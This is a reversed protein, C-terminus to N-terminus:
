ITFNVFQTVFKSFIDFDESIAISMELFKTVFSVHLSKLARWGQFARVHLGPPNHQKGFCSFPYTSFHLCISFTSVTLLCSLSESLVNFHSRKKPKCFAVLFVLPCIECAFFSESLIVIQGKETSMPAATHQKGLIGTFKATGLMGLLRQM